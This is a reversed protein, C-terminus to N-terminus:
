VRLGCASLLFLFYRAAKTCELADLVVIDNMRVHICQTFLSMPHLASQLASKRFIWHLDSVAASYYSVIM